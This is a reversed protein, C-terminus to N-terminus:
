HGGFGMLMRLRQDAWQARSPKQRERDDHRTQDDKKRQAEIALERELRQHSVVGRNLPDNGLM